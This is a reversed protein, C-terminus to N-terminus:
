EGRRKANHAEAYQLLRAKAIRWDQQKPRGTDEQEELAFGPYAENFTPFRADKAIIRNISMAMIDAQRYDLAARTAVRKKYGEITMNIEEVTYLWFERADIGAECAFPFM